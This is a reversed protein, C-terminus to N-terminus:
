LPHRLQLWARVCHTGPLALPVPTCINIIVDVCMQLAHWSTDLRYFCTKDCSTCVYLCCADPKLMEEQHMGCAHGAAGGQQGHV